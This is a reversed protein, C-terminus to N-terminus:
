KKPEKKNNEKEEKPLLGQSESYKKYASQFEKETIELGSFDIGFDIESITPYFKGSQDICTCKLIIEKGDSYISNVRIYSKKCYAIIGGYLTHNTEKYFYKGLYKEKAMQRIFVFMSENQSLLKEVKKELETIIKNNKNNFM